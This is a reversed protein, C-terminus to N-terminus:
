KAAGVLRRHREALERNQRLMSEHEAAARKADALLKNYRAIDNNVTDVGPTAAQGGQGEGVAIGHAALEKEATELRKMLANLNTELRDLVIQGTQMRSELSKIAEAKDEVSAFGVNREASREEKHVKIAKGGKSQEVAAPSEAKTKRLDTNPGAKEVPPAGAAQPLAVRVVVANSPVVKASLYFSLALALAFVSALAIGGVWWEMPRAKAAAEKPAAERVQSFRIENFAQLLKKEVEAKESQARLTMAREAELREELQRRESILKEEVNGAQLAFRAELAAKEASVREAVMREATDQEAKLRQVLAEKEEALQRELVERSEAFLRELREKERSSLEAANAAESLAAELAKREVAFREEIAIKEQAFRGELTEKEEEARETALKQAALREEIDAKKAAIHAEEAEREAVRHRERSAEDLAARQAAEKERTAAREAARRAEQASYNKLVYYIETPTSVIADIPCGAANSLENLCEYDTPDEIVVLLRGADKEVPIARRRAILEGSLIADAFSEPAKLLRGLRAFPLGHRRAIARALHSETIAGINLLLQGLRINKETEQRIATKEVIERAVVGLEVLIDGLRKPAKADQHLVTKAPLLKNERMVPRAGANEVVALREELRTVHGAHGAPKPEKHESSVTVASAPKSLTKSAPSNSEGAQIRLARELQWATIHGRDVLLEGIRQAVGRRQVAAAGEVVARDVFGQDVLIDGLRMVAPPEFPSDNVREM